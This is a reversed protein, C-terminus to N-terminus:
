VLFRGQKTPKKNAENLIIAHLHANISAVLNRNQTRKVPTNDMLTEFATSIQGVIKQKEDIKM